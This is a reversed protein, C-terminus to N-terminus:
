LENKGDEEQGGNDDALAVLPFIWFVTGPSDGPSTERSRGGASGDARASASGM